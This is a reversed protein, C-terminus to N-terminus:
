KSTDSELFRKRRYICGFGGLVSGFFAGAYAVEARFEPNLIVNSLVVELRKGDSLDFTVYRKSCHSSPCVQLTKSPVGCNRAGQRQQQKNKNEISSGYFCGV